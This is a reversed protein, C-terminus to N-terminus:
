LTQKYCRPCGHAFCKQEQHIWSNKCTACMYHGCSLSTALNGQKHCYACVNKIGNNFIAKINTKFDSTIKEACHSPCETHSDQFVYRKICSKCLNHGCPLFFSEIKQGFDEYCIMCMNEPHPKTTTTQTNSNNQNGYVQEYTPASPKPHTNNQPTPSQSPSSFYWDLLAWFGNSAQSKAEQNFQQMTNYVVQQDLYNQFYNNHPNKRCEEEIKQEYLHRVEKVSLPTTRQESAVKEMLKGAYHTLAQTVARRIEEKEVSAVNGYPFLITQAENYIGQRDKEPILSFQKGCRKSTENQIHNYVKDRFVKSSNNGYPRDAHICSLSSLLTAVIIIKTKM